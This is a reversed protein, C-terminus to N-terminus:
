HKKNITEIALDLMNTKSTVPAKTNKLDTVYYDDDTKKFCKITREWKGENPMIVGGGKIIEQIFYQLSNANFWIVKPSVPEGSFVMSFNEFSTREDIFRSDRLIKHVRNLNVNSNTLQFSQRKSIRTRKVKIKPCTQIGINEIIKFNEVKKLSELLIQKIEQFYDHLYFAFQHMEMGDKNIRIEFRDHRYHIGDKNTYFRDKELREIKGIMTSFVLDSNSRNIIQGEIEKRIEGRIRFSCDRLTKQFHSVSCKNELFLTPLPRDAYEIFEKELVEGISM